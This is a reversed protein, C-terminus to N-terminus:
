FFVCVCLVSVFHDAFSVLGLLAFCDFLTNMERVLWYELNLYNVFLAAVHVM